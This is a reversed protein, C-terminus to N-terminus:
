RRGLAHFWGSAVPGQACAGGRYRITGPPYEVPPDIVGDCDDDIGNGRVEEQGPHVDPDSDDCDDDTRSLGEEECQLRPDFRLELSGYGDGDEDAYCAEFGDCDQDIGDARVEFAHPHVDPDADDCDGAPRVHDPPPEDCTSYPESPDGYGDGDRDPYYLISPYGEDVYGDCDDDVNNCHEVAHPFVDPRQDDCDGGRIVMGHCGVPGPAVVGGWGDEDEDLFCLDLGDCDQDLGDAVFEEAAPSVFPNRDDCDGDNDAWGAGPPGCLEIPGVSADGYGDDDQDPWWDRPVEQEPFGDCDDDEGNCREQAGPHVAADGDDCDDGNSSEGEGSCGVMGEIPQLPDGFGDGDGDAFCDPRFDAGSCDQDIGDYPIETAGPFRGADTDDCDGGPEGVAWAEVDDVCAGDGDLDIGSPCFGDGDGDLYIPCPDVTAVDDLLTFAVIPTSTTEQAFQIRGRLGCFDTLDHTMETFQGVNAPLTAVPVAVGDDPYFRLYLAREEREDYHHFRVTRHTLLFSNSAVIAQGYPTTGDNQLLLAHTPSPFSLGAPLAADGEAVRRVVASMSVSMDDWGSEGQELDGNPPGGALALRVALMVTM